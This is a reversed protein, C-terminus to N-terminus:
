KKKGIIKYFDTNRHVNTRQYAKGSEIIEFFLSIESLQSYYHQYTAEYDANDMVTNVFVDHDNGCQHKFIVIGDQRLFDSLRKYVLFRKEYLFNMVGFLIILDYNGGAEFSMIDSNYFDIKPNLKIDQPIVFDVADVHQVCTSIRHPLECSGAGLDLVRFSPKLYPKIINYNDETLDSWLFKEKTARNEWFKKINDM